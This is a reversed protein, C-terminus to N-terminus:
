PRHTDKNALLGLVELVVAMYAGGGVAVSRLVMGSWGDALHRQLVPVPGLWELSALTNNKCTAGFVCRKLVRNTSTMPM